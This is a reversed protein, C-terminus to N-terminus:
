QRCQLCIVGVVGRPYGSNKPLAHAHETTLDHRQLGMSQLGIPEETWPIKGALTSSHNAIEEELHDEWGLSPVWTEQIAPPNKVWQSM